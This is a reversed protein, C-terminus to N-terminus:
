KELKEYEKKQREQRKINSDGTTNYLVWIRPFTPGIVMTGSGQVEEFM